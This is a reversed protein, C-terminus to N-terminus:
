TPGRRSRYSTSGPTSDPRSHLLALRLDPRLAAILELQRDLRQRKASCADGPEVPVDHEDVTTDGPVADFSDHLLGLSRVRLRPRDLYQLRAAVPDRGAGVMRARRPLNQRVLALELDLLVLDGV